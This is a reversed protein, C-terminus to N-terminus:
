PHLRARDRPFEKVGAGPAQVGRNRGVQTPLRVRNCMLACGWYSFRNTEGSGSEIGVALSSLRTIFHGNNLAIPINQAPFSQPSKFSYTLFSHGLWLMFVLQVPLCFSASFM